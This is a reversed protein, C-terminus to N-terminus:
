VDRTAQAHPVALRMLYLTRWHKHYITIGLSEFGARRYFRLLHSFSYIYIDTIGRERAVRLALGLLGYLVRSSKAASRFDPRVFLRGMLAPRAGASVSAALDLTAEFDFPRLEPGLLRVGAVIQGSNTLAILQNAALDCGDDAHKGLEGLYISARAALVAPLDAQTAVRFQLESNEM